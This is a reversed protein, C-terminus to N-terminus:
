QNKTLTEPEFINKRFRKKTIKQEMEWKKQGIKMEM